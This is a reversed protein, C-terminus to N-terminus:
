GVFLPIAGESVRVRGCGRAAGSGGMRPGRQDAACRGGGGAVRARRVGRVIGRSNGGGSPGLRVCVRVCGAEHRRGPGAIHRGRRSMPGYLHSQKMVQRLREETAARPTGSTAPSPARLFVRLRLKSPYILSLSFECCIKARVRREPSRRRQRPPMNVAHGRM